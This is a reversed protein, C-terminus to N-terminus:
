ETVQKYAEYVEPCQKELVEMVEIEFSKSEMSSEGLEEEMKALCKEAEAILKDGEPQMEAISNVDNEAQLLKMKATYEVLGANCDCIMNAAKQSQNQCNTFALLSITIILLYSLKM